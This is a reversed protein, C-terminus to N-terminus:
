GVGQPAVTCNQVPRWATTRPLRPMGALLATLDSAVEVVTATFFPVASSDSLNTLLFPNRVIIADGLL